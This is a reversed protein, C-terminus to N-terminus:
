IIEFLAFLNFISGIPIGNITTVKNQNRTPPIAGNKALPGFLSYSDNKM